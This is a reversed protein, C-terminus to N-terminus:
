GPAEVLVHEQEDEEITANGLEFCASIHVSAVIREGPGGPILM